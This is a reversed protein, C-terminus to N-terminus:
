QNWDNTEGTMVAFARRRLEIAFLSLDRFRTTDDEKNDTAFEKTGFASAMTDAMDALDRAMGVPMEITVIQPRNRDLMANYNDHLKKANMRYETFFKSVHVGM